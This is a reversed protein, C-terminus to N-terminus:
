NLKHEWSNLQSMFLAQYKPTGFLASQRKFKKFIQKECLSSLQHLIATQQESADAENPLVNFYEKWGETFANCSLIEM